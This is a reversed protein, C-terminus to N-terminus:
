ARCMNASGPRLMFHGFNENFALFNWPALVLALFRLRWYPMRPQLIVAALRIKKDRRWGKRLAHRELGARVPFREELM